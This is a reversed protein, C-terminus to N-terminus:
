DDEPVEAHIYGEEFFNILEKEAQKAIEEMGDEYEIELILNAGQFAGLGMINFVSKADARVGNYLLFIGINSYENKSSIQSLVGAPRLHMGNKSKITVVNTLTM